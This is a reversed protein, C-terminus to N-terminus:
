LLRYVGMSIIVIVLKFRGIDKGRLKINILSLCGNFLIVCDMRRILRSLYFFVFHFKVFSNYTRSINLSSINLIIELM